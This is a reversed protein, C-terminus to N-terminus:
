PVEVLGIRSASCSRRPSPKTTISGFRPARTRGISSLKTRSMMSISTSISAASVRQNTEIASRASM